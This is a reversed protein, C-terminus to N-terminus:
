KRPRKKSPRSGDDDSDNNTDIGECLEQFLAMGEFFESDTQNSSRKFVSVFKQIKGFKKVITDIAKTHNFTISIYDSEEKCSVLQDAYIFNCLTYLQHTTLKNENKSQLIYSSPTVLAKSSYSSEM